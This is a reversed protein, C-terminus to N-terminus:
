WVAKKGSGGVVGGGGDRDNQGEGGGSACRWKLVLRERRQCSNCTDILHSPNLRDVGRQGKESM